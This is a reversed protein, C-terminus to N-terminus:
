GQAAHHIAQASGDPQKERRGFIDRNYESECADEETHDVTENGRRIRILEALISIAIEESGEASIHLGVPSHFWPPVSIGELVRKTRAKSGMIGAYKLRTSLMNQVFERDWRLHHSMVIVYDQETLNLQMLSKKPFGIIFAADEFRENTCLEARWDAIIVQFGIRRALQAVPIADNGAGFIILRPMPSFMTSVILEQENLSCMKQNEFGSARASILKYRISKSEEVIVRKLSVAVQMELKRKVELLHELLVGAVPELLVRVTGGCGIAEGWAADDESKMDYEVLQHTNSALIGEVREILDAEMCGPSISGIASGNEMLLMMAGAKRYAHGEVSAITVLVSRQTSDAIKQLINHVDM